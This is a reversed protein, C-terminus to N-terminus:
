CRAGSGLMPGGKASDCPIGGGDLAPATPLPARQEDPATTGSCAAAAITLTLAALAALTTRRM